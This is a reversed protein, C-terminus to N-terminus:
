LSTGFCVGFFLGVFFACVSVFALDKGHWIAQKDLYARTTENQSNYWETFKNM